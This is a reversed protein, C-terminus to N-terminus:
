YDRSNTLSVTLGSDQTLKLFSDDENLANVDEENMAKEVYSLEEKNSIDVTSAYAAAQYYRWKDPLLVYSTCPLSIRCM